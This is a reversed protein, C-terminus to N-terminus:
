SAEVLADLDVDALLAVAAEYASRARKVNGSEAHRMFAKLEDIACDVLTLGVDDDSEETRPDLPHSTPAGLDPMHRTFPALAGIMVPHLASM